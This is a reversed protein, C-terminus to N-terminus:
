RGIIQAAKQAILAHAATTPHLEDWWVYSNPTACIPASPASFLPYCPAKINTFGFAGPNSEVQKFLQDIDVYYLNLGPSGARLGPVVQTTIAGNYGASMATALAVANPGGAAIAPPTALNNANTLVIHRAGAAYLRGVVSFIDSAAQSTAQAPLTAALSPNASVMELVRRVNNGFTAGDVVYLYQPNAQYGVRALFQETQIQLNPLVPVVTDGPIVGTRAGGTAYNFGGSRSAALSSGYRAALVQNYLAGNSATSRGAYPPVPFCLPDPDNPFGCRNGTDTVSSGVVVMTSFLPEPAPTDSGGCAALLLALAAAASLRLANRISPIM